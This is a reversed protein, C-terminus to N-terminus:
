EATEAAKAEAAIEDLMALLEKSKEFYEDYEIDGCDFIRNLWEMMGNIIKMKIDFVTKEISQEPKSEPKVNNAICDLLELTMSYIDKLYTATTGPATKINDAIVKLNKTLEETIKERVWIDSKAKEATVTSEEAIETAETNEIYENYNESM